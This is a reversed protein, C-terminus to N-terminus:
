SASSEGSWCPRIAGRHCRMNTMALLPRACCARVACCRAREARAAAPAGPAAPGLHGRAAPAAHGRGHPGARRPVVHPGDREAGCIRGPRRLHRQKPHQTQELTPNILVSARCAAADSLAAGACPRCAWPWGGVLATRRRQQAARSPRPVHGAARLLMRLSSRSGRCRWSMHLGLMSGTQGCPPLCAPPCRAGPAYGHDARGPLAGGAGRGARVRHEASAARRGVPRARPHGGAARRGGASSASRPHGSTCQLSGM